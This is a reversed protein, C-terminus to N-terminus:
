RVRRGARPPRAPDAAVMVGLGVFAWRLRIARPPTPEAGPRAAPPLAGRNIRLLPPNARQLYAVVGATLAFEVVGAVTLHAVMMAPITQALHFPAYLPTGDANHFLTPQLGFEIAACLAAVNM